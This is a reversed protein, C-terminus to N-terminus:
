LKGALWTGVIGIVLTGLSLLLAWKTKGAAGELELTRLREEIRGTREEDKTLRAEIKAETERNLSVAFGRAKDVSGELRRLHELIEGLRLNLGELKGDLVKIDGTDVTGRESM